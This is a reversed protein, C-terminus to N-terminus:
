SSAVKRAAQAVDTLTTIEILRAVGGALARRGSELQVLVGVLGLVRLLLPGGNAEDAMVSSCAELVVPHERCVDQLLPANGKLLHKLAGAACQRVMQGRSSDGLLQALAHICGPCEALAQQSSSSGTALHMLCSAACERTEDEYGPGLMRVLVLVTVRDQAIELRVAPDNDVARVLAKAARFLGAEDMLGASLFRDRVAATAAAAGSLVQVHCCGPMVLNLLEKDKTSIQSAATCPLALM